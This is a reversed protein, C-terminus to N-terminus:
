HVGGGRMEADNQAWSNQEILILQCAYPICCPMCLTRPYIMAVLCSLLPTYCKGMMGDFLGVVVLIIPGLILIYLLGFEAQEVSKFFFSYM